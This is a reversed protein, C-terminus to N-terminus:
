EREKKEKVEERRVWDRLIDIDIAKIEKCFVKWSAVSGSIKEKFVALLNDRVRTLSSRTKEIGVWKVLDLAKEAFVVHSWTDQGGYPVTTALTKEELMLESLERELDVPSKKAKQVGPFCTRFVAEFNDWTPKTNLTNKNNYWEEALSDTKLYDGFARILPADTTVRSDHMARHFKKLFDVPQQKDSRDGSFFDFSESLM